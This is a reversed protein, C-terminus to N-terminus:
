KSTSKSRKNNPVLNLIKHLNLQKEKLKLEKIKMRNLVLEKKNGHIPSLIGNESNKYSDLKNKLNGVNLISNFIKKSKKIVNNTNKTRNDSLIENNRLINKFNIQDSAHITFRGFNKNKAYINSNSKSSNYGLRFISHNRTKNTLNNPIIKTYNNKKTFNNQFNPLINLPQPPLTLLGNKKNIFKINTHPASETQNKTIKINKKTNKNNKLYLLSNNNTEKYKFKKIAKKTNYNNNNYNNNLERLNKIIKNFSGNPSILKQGITINNINININNTTKGNQILICNNNVLKNAPSLIGNIKRFSYPNENLDKISKLILNNSKKKNEMENLLQNISNSTQSLKNNSENSKSKEMDFIIKKKPKLKQIFEEKEFIPTIKHNEEIIISQDIDLPSLPYIINKQINQNENNNNQSIKIEKESRKLKKNILQIQEMAAESNVYTFSECNDIEKMIEQNFIKPLKKKELSKQEKEENNEEEADAYNENYFIQAVKEMHRVMKKNITYQNFCPKCFFLLYNKYYNAYQPIRTCSENLKYERRLYERLTSTNYGMENFNAFYHCKKKTILIDLNNKLYLEPTSNYKNELIKYSFLELNLKMNINTQIQIDKNKTTIISQSPNKMLHFKKKTKTNNEEMFIKYLPIKNRRNNNNYDEKPYKQSITKSKKINNLIYNNKGNRNM